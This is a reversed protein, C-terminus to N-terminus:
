VLDLVVNPVLMCSDRVNEHCGCVVVLERGVLQEDYLDIEEVRHSFPQGEEFRNELRPTVRAQKKVVEGTLCICEEDILPIVKEVCANDIPQNTADDIL